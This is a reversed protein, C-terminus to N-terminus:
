YMVKTGNWDSFAIEANKITKCNVGTVKHQCKKKNSISVGHGSIKYKIFDWLELVEWYFARSVDGGRNVIDDIILSRNDKLLSKGLHFTERCVNM